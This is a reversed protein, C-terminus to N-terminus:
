ILGLQGLEYAVLQQVEQASVNINGEEKLQDIKQRASRAWGEFEILTGHLRRVDVNSFDSRRDDRWNSKITLM